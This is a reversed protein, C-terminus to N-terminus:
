NQKYNPAVMDYYNEKIYEYADYHAKELPHTTGFPYKEDRAWTFFGRNGPFMIWRSLDIQNYLTSISEEPWYKRNEFLCEDVTTFIYPINKLQLYQQLIVIETYSSWLEYCGISGVHKYFAKAFENTGTRKSRELHEIHNQLIINNDTKFEKKVVSADDLISWPTISYWNGWREGTDYAFRFEYRSPFSWCVFVLDIDTMRECANMVTRRIAGNAYGPYAVCEYQQGMDNALLATFTSQSIVQRAPELTENNFPISSDALESGWIFSDGGVVITM